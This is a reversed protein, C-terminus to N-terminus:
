GNLVTDGDLRERWLKPSLGTEDKFCRSFYLPDEFGVARAVDGIRLHSMALLNKAGSIRARRVLTAFPCGFLERVLAGTRSRSRGIHQALDGLQVPLSRHFNVFTLITTQLDSGPGDPVLTAALREALGVSIVDLIAMLEVAQDADYLPLEQWSRRWDKSLSHAAIPLSQDRWTGAFLTALPRGAVRLPCAIERLGKWCTTVFPQPRNALQEGVQWRCHAVCRPGFGIGCVSQTRHSQWRKGILPRREEDHLLGHYDIVTLRVQLRREIAHLTTSLGNDM